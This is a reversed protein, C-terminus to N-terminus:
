GHPLRSGQTRRHSPLASGRRRLDAGAGDACQAAAHRGARTFRAFAPSVLCAVEQRVGGAAWQIAQRLLQLESGAPATERTRRDLGLALGCAAVRGGESEGVVLVPAGDKNFAIARGAPGASLTIVDGFASEFPQLHQTVPHDVFRAVATTLSREVGRVVEPFLPKELAFRFGVFDHALILGGGARVYAILSSRWDGRLRLGARELLGPDQLEPVVVVDYRALTAFSCDAIRDAQLDAQRDAAVSLAEYVGQAGYTVGGLPGVDLVAM